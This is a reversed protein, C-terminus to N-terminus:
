LMGDIAAKLAAKPKFGLTMSPEGSVPCFLLAPISTIGFANCLEPEEDTNVKYIDVKGEYELAIDELEPSLMQCPGCWVAYFDVIAPRMGRFKWEKPSEEFDWIKELFEKKTIHKLAM